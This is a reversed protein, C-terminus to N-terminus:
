GVTGLHIPRRHGPRQGNPLLDAPSILVRTGTSSLQTFRTACQKGETRTM